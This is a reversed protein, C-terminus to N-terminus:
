PMSGNSLAELFAVIAAEEEPTLALDGLEDTNVNATAEPAPWCGAALAAAETYLGPCGHDGHPRAEALASNRQDVIRPVAPTRLHFAM